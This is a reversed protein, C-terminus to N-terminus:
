LFSRKLVKTQTERERGVESTPFFIGRGHYFFFRGKYYTPVASLDIGGPRRDSKAKERRRRRRRRKQVITWSKEVALLPSFLNRLEGRHPCLLVRLIASSFREEERPCLSSLSSARHTHTHVVLYLFLATSCNSKSMHCLQQPWCMSFLTAHTGLLVTYTPFYKLFQM